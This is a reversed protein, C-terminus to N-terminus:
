ELPERSEFQGQAQRDMALDGCAGYHDTVFKAWNKRSRRQGNAPQITVLVDHNAESSGLPVRLLLVGDPGVSSQIQITGM